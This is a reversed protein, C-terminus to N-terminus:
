RKVRGRVALVAFGLLTPEGIRSLMEIYTGATTLDQGSSRFIVSNIVVRLSKDFRRLTLRDTVPGAPDVPDPTDTSFTLHRGTLTGTSQPKPADKPLGWLMMSLVTATMAALLWGLARSARLGYGCIAWYLALLRREGRPRAPDLRRMEMEGYYFDAADPENKADEFSKRLQRYMGTLEAPGVTEPRIGSGPATIWDAQGRTFRWHHEEALAQRSTWRTLRAGRRRVGRPASAFSCDGDIQLQDLNFTGAFQCASLDLDSLVLHAADTGSVSAVRARSALGMLRAEYVTDGSSRGFATRASTIKLPYEFVADTLDVEAYRLRLTATAAWRTRFCLVRHAALEATMPGRFETVSLNVTGACVLPGLEAAKEFVSGRFDVGRHFTAEGFWATDSFTAGFLASGTFTARAFSSVGAFTVRDFAASSTFFVGHFAALDMFTAMSFQARGTFLANVFWADGAFTSMAFWADGFRPRGTAPDQLATLLENLLAPSFATGRHDIDSGPSLSALYASRDAADLHQM